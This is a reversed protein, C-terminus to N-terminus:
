DRKLTKRTSREIFGVEAPTLARDFIALEDIDGVYNLGLMIADPPDKEPDWSIAIKRNITGQLKGDLYLNATSKTNKTSNIDSFTIAVHTWRDSTFPPNNVVVLPRDQQAVQDWKLGKPNWKEFDSFVGLRFTRPKVDDFDVWIAGDNWKRGAIQIPDCFGDGLDKNPDLRLWFSVAGEWDTKPFFGAASRSKYFLVQPVKKSYRLCDGSVGEGKAISVGAIAGGDMVSKRGVSDATSILGHADFLNADTVSDFTANFTMASEVSSKLSEDSAEEQDAEPNAVPGKSFFVLTKLDEAISHFHHKANAPVFVISGKKLDHDKGEINIKAIGSEVYYIEDQKHPQQGDKAGKELCYIGCHLSDVNLFPLYSRAADARQTELNDFQFVSQANAVTQGDCYGVMCSLFFIALSTAITSSRDSRNFLTM